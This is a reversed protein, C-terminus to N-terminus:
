HTLELAAFQSRYERPTKGEFRKFFKAFNTADHFALKNCIQSVSMSTESLMIKAEAMLREDLFDQPSRKTTLKIVNNFHTPRISLREAFDKIKFAHDIKGSLIDEIHQDLFNLFQTTIEHKRSLVDQPIPVMSVISLELISFGLPYKLVLKVYYQSPHKHKENIIKTPTADGFSYDV